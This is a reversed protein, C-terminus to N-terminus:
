KHLEPFDIPSIPELRVSEVITHFMALKQRYDAPNKQLTYKPNISFRLVLWYSSEPIKLVWFEVPVANPFGPRSEAAMTKKLWFLKGVKVPVSGDVYDDTGKRPDPKIILLGFGIASDSFFASCFPEYKEFEGKLNEGLVHNNLQSVELYEARDYKYAYSLKGGTEFLPANLENGLAGYGGLRRYVNRPITCNRIGPGSLWNFSLRYKEMFRSAYASDVALVENSAGPRLYYNELVRDNSVPAVSSCAFIGAGIFLYILLKVIKM